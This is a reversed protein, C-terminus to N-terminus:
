NQNAELLQNIATFLPELDALSKTRVDEVATAHYTHTIRQEVSLKDLKEKYIIRVVQTGVSNPLEQPATLQIPYQHPTPIQVCLAAQFSIFCVYTIVNNKM